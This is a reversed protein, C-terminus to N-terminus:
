PLTLVPVKNWIYPEQNDYKGEHRKQTDAVAASARELNKKNKPCLRSTRQQHTDKNCHPCQKKGAISRTKGRHAESEADTETMIGSLYGLDRENDQM